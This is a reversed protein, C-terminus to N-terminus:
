ISPDVGRSEVCSRKYRHVCVCVCVCVCVDGIGLVLHPHRDPSVTGDGPATNFRFFPVDGMSPATSMILAGGAEFKDVHMSGGNDEMSELVYKPLEDHGGNIRFWIARDSPGVTVFKGGAAVGAFKGAPPIIGPARLTQSAAGPANAPHLQGQRACGLSPSLASM